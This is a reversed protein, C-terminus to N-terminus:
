VPPLLRLNGPEEGVVTLDAARVVPDVNVVHPFELVEFDWSSPRGRDPFLDHGGSPPLREDDAVVAVDGDM